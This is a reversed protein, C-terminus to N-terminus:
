FLSFYLNNMGEALNLYHQAHIMEGDQDMEVHGDNEGDHEMEVHGDNDGDHEMEVHEDHDVVVPPVFNRPQPDEEQRVQPIDPEDDDNRLDDAPREERLNPVGHDDENEDGTGGHGEPVELNDRLMLDRAERGDQSHQRRGQQEQAESPVGYEDESIVPPVVYNSPFKRKRGRM